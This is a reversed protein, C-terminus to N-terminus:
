ALHQRRNPRKIGKFTLILAGVLFALTV